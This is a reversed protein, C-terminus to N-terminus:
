VFQETIKLRTTVEAPFFLANNKETDISDAFTILLLSDRGSRLDMDVDSYIVKYFLNNEACPQMENIVVVQRIQESRKECNMTVLSLIMILTATINRGQTVRRMTKLSNQNRRECKSLKKLVKAMKINSSFYHGVDYNLNM